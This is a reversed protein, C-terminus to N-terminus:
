IRDLAKDALFKSVTLGAKAAAEKIAAADEELFCVSMHKYPRQTGRTTGKPRGAGKRKGGWSSVEEM